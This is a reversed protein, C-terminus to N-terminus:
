QETVHPQVGKTMRLFQLGACLVTYITLMGDSNVLCTEGGVGHVVVWLIWFSIDIQCDKGHGAPLPKRHQTLTLELKAVMSRQLGPFKNERVNSPTDYFYSWQIGLRCQKYNSSLHYKIM